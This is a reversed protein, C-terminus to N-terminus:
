PHAVPCGGPVRPPIRRHDVGAGFGRAGAPALVGPTPALGAEALRELTVRVLGVTLPEGPCRHGDAPDGGGQPVFAFPDPPAGHYREPAFAGPDTWWAPDLMTGPVDLVIRDGARARVGDHEVDARLRGALAPVFPTLRRAEHVAGWRREDQESTAPGAFADLAGPHRAVELVALSAPWASAVTPRLVNLLEVGAVSAPLDSGGGLAVAHLATDEAVAVEGARVRRVLDAAWRDLRVRQVWARAYAAGAFGFGDVVEALGRARRGAERDSAPVGAWALVARGYVDVLEDFLPRGDASDDAWAAFRRALEDSVQAVLPETRAPRLVELFVGKRARHEDGDLAHVAGRGFLLAGLPPPVADRRRVRTEDYFLEAGRRGRVVLTRRGLLRTTWTDVGGHRARGVDLADYGHRLLDLALDMVVPVRQAEHSGRAM